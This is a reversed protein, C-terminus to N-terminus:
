FSRLSFWATPGTNHAYVGLMVGTFGGAVETGLYRASGRAVVEDDVVFRYEDATAEISLNVGPASRPQEYVIAELDGIRRRVIISAGRVALEYHHTENQFAVIGAEQDPSDPAFELTVRLAADHGRQRIGMFTTQGDDSLGSVDGILGVKDDLFSYCSRNPNRLYVWQQDQFSAVTSIPSPSCIAREGDNVVPWGDVWEVPAICTERGAVHYRPYAHPRIAHFVMSWKGEPTEVFDAHGLAQLSESTSRHTLIPNTPCSEYPGDISKSRSITQMHGYETGGEAIMLYFWDGIRYLHPGEPYAGGTGAWITKSESIQAFSEPDLEILRIGGDGTGTFWLRGEHLFLSPDIGTRAEGDLWIPDSWPGEPSASTVVFNGGGSVNTTIMVFRGNHYRITPAYIGGFSVNANRLPLQSERDLVHGIQTWTVLDRSHWIPVGPFYGFSSNVLYYDEGVRCISPDPYFGPLIPNTKATSM